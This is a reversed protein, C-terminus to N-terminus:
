ETLQFGVGLTYMASGLMAMDIGVVTPHRWLASERVGPEAGGNMERNRLHLKGLVRVMLGAFGPLAAGTGIMDSSTGFIDRLRCHGLPNDVNFVDNISGFM